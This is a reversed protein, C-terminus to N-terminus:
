HGQLHPHLLFPSHVTSVTRKKEKVRVGLGKCLSKIARLADEEDIRVSTTLHTLGDSLISVTYRRAMTVPFM